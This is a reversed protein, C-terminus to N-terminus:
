EIPYIQSAYNSWNEAAKYTDVASAPVYIKLEASTGTLANASLTPPTQRNITLSRLGTCYAFAYSGISSVGGPLTISTLDVCRYFCLSRISSASTVNISTVLEDNLYLHTPVTYTTYGSNVQSNLWHNLSTLYVHEFLAPRNTFIANYHADIAGNLHWTRLKPCNRLNYAGFEFQGPLTISEVNAMNSLASAGSNTYSMQYFQTFYKLDDLSTINSNNCLYRFVFTNMDSNTINAAESRLIGGDGNSDLGSVFATREAPGAFEIFEHTTGRPYDIYLQGFYSALVRKMGPNDPSDTPEFGDALKEIDSLYYTSNAVLKGEIHPNINVDGSGSTNVGNYNHTNGNKDKDDKINCLMGLQKGTVNKQGAWVLRIFSLTQNASNYVSYLTTMGDLADCEELYILTINSANAPLVLDSLYKVIQYSLTTVHDSLHLKEIKSGRPLVVSSVKTGETYVELVRKCNSLDLTGALESANRVDVIELCPLGSGAINLNVINTSVEQEADGM